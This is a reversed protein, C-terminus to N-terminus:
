FPLTVHYFFDFDLPEAQGSGLRKSFYYSTYVGGDTVRIHGFEKSCGASCARKGFEFVRQLFTQALSPEHQKHLKILAPNKALLGTAIYGPDHTPQNAIWEDHLLHRLVNRIGARVRRDCDQHIFAIIAHM